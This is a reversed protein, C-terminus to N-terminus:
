QKHGSISEAKKEVTACRIPDGKGIGQNVAAHGLYPRLNLGGDLLPLKPPSPPEIIMRLYISSIPAKHVHLVQVEEDASHITKTGM